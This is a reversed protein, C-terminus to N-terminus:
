SDPTPPAGAQKRYHYSGRPHFGLGQYLAAAPANGQEVELLALDAGQVAAIALLTQSVARGLGERRRQPDVAIMNLIAATGRGAEVLAARGVAVPAGGGGGDDVDDGNGNGNSRLLVQVSPTGALIDHMTARADDGDRPALSWAAEFWDEDLAGTRIEASPHPAATRARDLPLELLTSHGTADYGRAALLSDLTEPGHADLVRFCAQEGTMALLGEIREVAALLSAEDSPADVAVASNARRTIGRSRLLAFGDVDLRQLPRWGAILAEVLHYGGLARGSAPRASHRASRRDAQSSTRRSRPSM